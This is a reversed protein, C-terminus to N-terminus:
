AFRGDGDDAIAINHDTVRLLPEEAKLVALQFFRQAGTEQGLGVRRERLVDHYDVNAPPADHEVGARTTRVNDAWRGAVQQRVEASSADIRCADRVDNQSVTMRVMHQAQDIRGSLWGEVLRLDVNGFDVVFHDRALGVAVIGERRLHLALDRGDGIADHHNALALFYQGPDGRDRRGSM